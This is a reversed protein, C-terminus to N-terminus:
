AAARRGGWPQPASDAKQRNPLPRGQVGAFSGVKSCQPAAVQPRSFRRGKATPLYGGKPPPLASCGLPRINPRRETADNAAAFRGVQRHRRHPQEKPTRSDSVRSPRSWSRAIRSRLFSCDLVGSRRMGLLSSAVPRSMVFFCGCVGHVMLLELRMPPGVRSM